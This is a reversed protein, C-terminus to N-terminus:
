KLFMNLKHKNANNSTRYIYMKVDEYLGDYNIKMKTSNHCNNNLLDCIKFFIDQINKEHIVEWTKFDIKKEKYSIMM